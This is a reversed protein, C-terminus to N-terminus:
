REGQLRPQVSIFNAPVEYIFNTSSCSELQLVVRIEKERERERNNEM